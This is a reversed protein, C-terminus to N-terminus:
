GGSTTLLIMGLHRDAQMRQRAEELQGFPFTRDVLPTIRGDAVAPMLDRVFGPVDAARQQPTRM